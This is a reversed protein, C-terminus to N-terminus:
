QQDVQLTRWYPAVPYSLLFDKLHRMEEYTSLVGPEKLAADYAEQNDQNYYRLRIIEARQFRCRADLSLDLCMESHAECIESITPEFLDGCGAIAFLSVFGLSAGRWTNRWNTPFKSFLVGGVANKVPMIFSILLKTM